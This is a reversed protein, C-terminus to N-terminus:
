GSIGISLAMRTIHGTCITLWKMCRVTSRVTSSDVSFVPSGSPSHLVLATAHRAFLTHASNAIEFFFAYRVLWEHDLDVQTDGETFKRTLM